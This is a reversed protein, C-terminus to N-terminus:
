ARVPCEDIMYRTALAAPVQMFNVRMMEQGASLFTLLIVAATDCAVRCHEALM